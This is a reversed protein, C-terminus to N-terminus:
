STCQMVRTDDTDVVVATAAITQGLRAQITARDPGRVTTIVVGDGTMEPPGLLEGPSRRQQRHVVWDAAPGPGVERLRGPSGYITVWGTPQAGPRLLVPPLPEGLQGLVAPEYLAVGFRDAFGVNIGGGGPRAAVEGVVARQGATIFVELHTVGRLWPLAAAVRCHTKLLLRATAPDAVPVSRRALARRYNVTPDLYENAVAALVQGADVVGDIHFLQGDIFEEVMLGGEWPTGAEALEALEPASTVVHVGFSGTAARPKVVVRRFERLLGLGDEACRFPVAAAVTLGAAALHRKMVLKDRAQATQAASPGPLGLADRLRAAPLLLRESLAVIREVPRNAHVERLATALRREDTVDTVRLSVPTLGTVTGAKAPTTLLTVDYRQPDIFPRGDAAHFKHWGARDVVAIHAREPLM